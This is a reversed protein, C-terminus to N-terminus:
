EDIPAYPDNIGLQQLLEIELTEMKTADSHDIHDYGLLHLTGHISLHCLHSLIPKNQQQSEKEITDISLIIDGLMPPMGDVMPMHTDDGDMLAFSLVNTPSDKGRYDRNLNQIDGDDCLVVSIEVHPAQEPFFVGSNQYALTVSKEIADMAGTLTDWRNDDITFDLTLPPLAMM